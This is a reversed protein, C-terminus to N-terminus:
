GNTYGLITVTVSTCNGFSAKPVSINSAPSILTYDYVGDSASGQGAPICLEGIQNRVIDLGLKKGQTSAYVNLADTVSQVIAQDDAGNYLTLAVNITYNIATPALVVVTDTTPRINESAFKAIVADLIASPTPVVDTLPYIAVTGAGPYPVGIEPGQVAVDIISPHASFTHFKYADIPGAVAFASSALYIRQRLQDDTEEESGGSTVIANSVSIFYTFSDILTTLSGTLFGNTASGPDQAIAPISITNTGSLVLTDDIVTFVPTGNANSVRTGSQIVINPHASLNFTLITTASQAPLRNDIGVNKALYDLTPFTAFPALNQLAADNVANRYTVERDVFANFLFSEVEAPYITRGTLTQYYTIMDAKITAVDATIFVPIPLDPM